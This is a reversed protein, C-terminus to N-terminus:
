LRVNNDSAMKAFAIEAASKYVIRPFAAGTYENQACIGRKINYSLRRLSKGINKKVGHGVKSKFRSYGGCAGVGVGGGWECNIRRAWNELIRLAVGSQSGEYFGCNVIAYIKAKSQQRDKLARSIPRPSSIYEATSCMFSLLHSPIGDLYLPFVFLVCPSPQTMHKIFKYEAIENDQRKFINLIKTNIEASGTNFCELFDEILAHSSSNDQKPSGNIILLSM